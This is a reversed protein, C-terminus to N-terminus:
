PKPEEKATAARNITAGFIRILYKFFEERFFDNPLAKHRRALRKAVKGLGGRSPEIDKEIGDMMEDLLKEYKKWTKLTVPRM